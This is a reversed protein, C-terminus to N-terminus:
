PQRSCEQSNAGDVGRMVRTVAPLSRRAMAEDHGDVRVVRYPLDEPLM